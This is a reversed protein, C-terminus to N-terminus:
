FASLLMGLPVGILLSVALLAIIAIVVVSRRASKEAKERTERDRIRTEADTFRVRPVAGIEEEYPWLVTAEVYSGSKMADHIMWTYEKPVYGVKQSGKYLAIAQDDYENEPEPVIELNEGEELKPQDHFFWSQIDLQENLM